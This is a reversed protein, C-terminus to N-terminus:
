KEGYKLLQLFPCQTPDPAYFDFWARFLEHFVLNSLIGLCESKDLVRAFLIEADRCPLLIPRGVEDPAFLFDACEQKGYKCHCEIYLSSRWNGGTANLFAHILRIDGYCRSRESPM